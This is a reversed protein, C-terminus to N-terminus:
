GSRDRNRRAAAVAAAVLARSHPAPPPALAAPQPEIEDDPFRQLIRAALSMCCLLLALFAFVVGMGVVMLELGDSLM